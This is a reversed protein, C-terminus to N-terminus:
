KEIVVVHPEKEKVIEKVEAIIDNTRVEDSIEICLIKELFNMEASNVGELNKTRETIIGACYECDLGQLFFEKKISM